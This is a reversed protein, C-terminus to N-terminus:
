LLMALAAFVLGGVPAAYSAAAAVSVRPTGTSSGTGTTTPRSTATANGGRPTGTSATGSASSSTSGVQASTGAANTCNGQAFTASNQNLTATFGGALQSAITQAATPVQAVVADILAQSNTSLTQSQQLIVECLGAKEFDPKKAALDTVLTQGDGQLGGVIQQLMVADNLTLPTSAKITTTGTTITNSLDTAATTLATPDSSFGKVATDLAKIKDNVGNIVGTVAALDRGVLSPTDSRVVLTPPQMHEQATVSVSLALAAASLQTSFKM